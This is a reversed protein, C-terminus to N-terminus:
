SRPLPGPGTALLTCRGSFVLHLLWDRRGEDDADEEGTDGGGRLCKPALLHFGRRWDVGAQESRGTNSTHQYAHGRIKAYFPAMGRDNRLTSYHNAPPSDTHIDIRCQRSGDYAALTHEFLVADLSNVEFGAAVHQM